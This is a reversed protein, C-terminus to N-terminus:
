RNVYLCKSLALTQTLTHCHIYPTLTDLPPTYKNDVHSPTNDVDVSYQSCTLEQSTLKNLEFFSISGWFICQM